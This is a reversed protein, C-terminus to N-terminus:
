GPIAGSFTSQRSRVNLGDVTPPPQDVSLSFIETLQGTSGASSAARSPLHWSPILWGLLPTAAASVIAVSLVWSRVAASRQRLLATAALALVVILSVKITADLLLSM